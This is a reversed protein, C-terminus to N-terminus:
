ILMVAADTICSSEPGCGEQYAESISMPKKAQEDESEERQQTSYQISTRTGAESKVPWYDM